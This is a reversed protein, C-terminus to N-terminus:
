VEAQRDDLVLDVGGGWQHHMLSSFFLFRKQEVHKCFMVIHSKKWVISPKFNSMISLSCLCVQLAVIVLEYAQRGGKQQNAWSFLGEREMWDLMNQYLMKVLGQAHAGFVIHATVTLALDACLLLCSYLMKIPMCAASIYCHSQSWLDTPTSSSSHLYVSTGLGWYLLSPMHLRQVIRSLLRFHIGGEM